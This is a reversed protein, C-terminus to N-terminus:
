EEDELEIVKPFTVKQTKGFTVWDLNLSPAAKEFAKKDFNLFMKKEFAFNSAQEEDYDIIKAEQVKVGGLLAKNGTDKFEDIAEATIAEKVMAIKEKIEIMKKSMGEIEINFNEKKIKLKGELEAIEGLYTRLNELYERTM